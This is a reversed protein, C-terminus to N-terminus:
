SAIQDLLQTDTNSTASVFSCGLFLTGMLLLSLPKKM